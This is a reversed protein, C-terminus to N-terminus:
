NDFMVSVNGVKSFSLYIELSKFKKASFIVISKKLSGGCAVTEDM